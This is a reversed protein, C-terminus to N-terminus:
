LAAASLEGNAARMAAEDLQGVLAALRLRDLLLGVQGEALALEASAADNEANLLDLTTREGVELGVKTADRRLKSARLVEALAQARERGVSLGLWAARVQQAVAQRTRDLEALSKEALQKVEAHKAHRYGGTFLPASLQLGILRNSGTSSAAGFDGSGSLRERSAQAVLDLTASSRLRYKTAEQKAAEAALLQSRIAPNGTQAHSQWIALPRAAESDIREPLAAPLRAVLALEPLGTSDALMGRKLQLESEAALTQARIGALRARAEHTDTIPISGLKFRDEAETTASQVAGAQMKLVRLSEQTLALDFYREATHLMLSQGAAQWQLDALEASLSLQQQHARRQPNYLPQTATIVLRGSDGNTVSTAFAAGSSQGFGPASFQAGRADSDSSAVGISGSLAVNPRWLAAAQDRLPQATAQAARETAFGKDNLAAAHWVDM